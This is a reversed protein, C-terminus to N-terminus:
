DFSAKRFRCCGATRQRGRGALLGRRGIWLWMGRINSPARSSLRRLGSETSVRKMETQITGNGAASLAGM